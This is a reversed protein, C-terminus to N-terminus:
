SIVRELIGDVHVSTINSRLQLAQAIALVGDQNPDLVIVETEPIVGNVLTQYDEVTSDIFVIQKTHGDEIPSTAGTFINRNSAHSPEQSPALSNNWLYQV